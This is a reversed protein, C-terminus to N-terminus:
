RAQAQTRKRTCVVRLVDGEHVIALSAAFMQSQRACAMENAAPPGPIRALASDPTCAAPATGHACVLILLAFIM